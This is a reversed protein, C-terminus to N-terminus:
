IRDRVVGGGVRLANSNLTYCCKDLADGPHQANEQALKKNREDSKDKEFKGNVEKIKTNDMSIILYKCNNGNIRIRMFKPNNESLINSMLLWKKHYPPEKGDHQKPYVRWNNKRLHEIAQENFTQSTNIKGTKDDGFKDRIFYMEKCNHYYYYQCIAKMLKEIMVGEDPKVFFEKHCYLTQWEGEKRLQGILGYCIRGGWDLMLILPENPNYRQKGDYRCDPSGLKKFDYKINIAYDGVFSIDYDNYYIQKEKNLKYFCDEIIDMIQNMIEILFILYPMKEFNDKFYSYKVFDLNDFANSLTFLVKGTKDLRPMMQRRVRQIENYQNKWDEPDEMQLLDLQMNVVRKWLELYNINYDTLYYNAKELVKKASQTYPMSSSFHMGNHWKYKAFLDKNARNTASVKQAYKELDLTLFEDAFEFDTNAGRATQTDESFLYFGVPKIKNYFTIYKSYDKAPPEYPLGWSKPPKVGIVYHIDRIYGAAELQALASPLITTLIHTFTEATITCSAGPLKEICRQMKFGMFRTKGTGRGAIDYEVKPNLLLRAAQFANITLTKNM